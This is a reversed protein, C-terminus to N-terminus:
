TVLFMYSPFLLQADRGLGLALEDLGKQRDHAGASAIGGSRFFPRNFRSLKLDRILGLM